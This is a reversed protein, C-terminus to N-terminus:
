ATERRGRPRGALVLLGAGILLLSEGQRLLWPTGYGTAPLLPLAEPTTSAAPLSPGGAPAAPSDFPAGAPSGGGEPGAPVEAV